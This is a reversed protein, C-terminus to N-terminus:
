SDAGLFGHHVMLSCTGLRLVLIFLQELEKAIDPEEEVPAPARRGRSAIMVPQQARAADLNSYYVHHGRFSGSQFGWEPSVKSPENEATDVGIKAVLYENKLVKRSRCSKWDKASISVSKKQFFDDFKKWNKDFTRCFNHNKM